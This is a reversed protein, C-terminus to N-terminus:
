MASNRRLTIALPKKTVSFEYKLFPQFRNSKKITMTQMTSRKKRSVSARIMKRFRRKNFGNLLRSMIGCLLSITLVNIYDIGPRSLTVKMYSNQKRVNAMRPTEIKEPLWYLAHRAEM